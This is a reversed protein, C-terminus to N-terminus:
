AMLKKGIVGFFSQKTYSHRKVEKGDLRQQADEWIEALSPRDKAGGLNM